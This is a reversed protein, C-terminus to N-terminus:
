CCLGSISVLWSCFLYYRPAAAWVVSLRASAALPPLSHSYVADPRAIRSWNSYHSAMAPRGCFPSWLCATHSWYLCTSTWPYWSASWSPTPRAPFGTNSVRSESHTWSYSYLSQCRQHHPSSWNQHWLQWSLLNWREILTGIRCPLPLNETKIFDLRTKRRKRSLLISVRGLREQFHINVIM